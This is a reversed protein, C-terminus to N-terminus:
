SGWSPQPNLATCPPISGPSWRKRGRNTQTTSAHFSKQNPSPAKDGPPVPEVFGLCTPTEVGSPATDVRSIMNKYWTQQLQLHISPNRIQPHSKIKGRHRQSRSARHSSYDGKRVLRSFALLRRCPNPWHSALNLIPFTFVAAFNARHSSVAVARRPMLGLTRSTTDSGAERTGM